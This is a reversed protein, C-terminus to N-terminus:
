KIGTHAQLGLRTIVFSYSELRDSDYIFSRKYDSQEENWIMASIYKLALLNRICDNLIGAPLNTEEKIHAYTETFYVANLVEQEEKNLIEEMEISSEIKGHIVALNHGFM